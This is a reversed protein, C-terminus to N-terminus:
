EKKDAVTINTSVAPSAPDPIEKIITVQSVKTVQIPPLPPAAPEQKLIESTDGGRIARILEGVFGLRKRDVKELLSDLLMMVISFLHWALFGIALGVAAIKSFEGPNIGLSSCVWETCTASLAFGLFTRLIGDIRTAPKKVSIAALAGLIGGGATSILTAIQHTTPNEM